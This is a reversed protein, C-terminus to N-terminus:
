GSASMWGEVLAVAANPGAVPVLADGSLASLGPLIGALRQAEHELRNNLGALASDAMKRRRRLNEACRSIPVLLLIIRLNGTESLLRTAAADFSLQNGELLVHHGRSEADAALALARALGGDTNRLADCGGGARDYCGIVTVPRSWGSRAYTSAIRRGDRESVISGTEIAGCALKRVVTSKGAGSLGKINIIM